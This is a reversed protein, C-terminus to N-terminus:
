RGSPNSFPLLFHHVTNRNCDCNDSVLATNGVISVENAIVKEQRNSDTYSVSVKANNLDAPIGSIKLVSSDNEMSM